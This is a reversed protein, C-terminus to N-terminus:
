VCLLTLSCVVFLAERSVKFSLVFTLISFLCKQWRTASNGLLNIRRNLCPCGVLQRQDRLIQSFQGGQHLLSCRSLFHIQATFHCGPVFIFHAPPPPCIEHPCSPHHLRPATLLFRTSYKTHKHTLNLRPPTAFM